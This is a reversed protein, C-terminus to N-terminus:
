YWPVEYWKGPRHALLLYSWARDVHDTTLEAFGKYDALCSYFFWILFALVVTILRALFRLAEWIFRLM